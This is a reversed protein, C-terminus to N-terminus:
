VPRNTHRALVALCIERESSVAAAAAAMRTAFTAKALAVWYLEESNELALGSLHSHRETTEASSAEAKEHAAPPLRLRWSQVGVGSGGSTSLQRSIASAVSKWATKAMDEVAATCPAVRLTGWSAAGGAAQSPGISRADSPRNSQLTMGLPCRRRPPVAVCTEPRRAARGTRGLCVPRSLARESLSARPQEPPGPGRAPPASDAGRPQSLAAGPGAQDARRADHGSSGLRSSLAATRARARRGRRVAPRPCRAACM